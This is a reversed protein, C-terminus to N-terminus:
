LHLSFTGESRWSDIVRGSLTVVWFVQIRFMLFTPIEFSLLHLSKTKCPVYCLLAPFINLKNYAKKQTIQQCRFKIHWRKPVCQEM